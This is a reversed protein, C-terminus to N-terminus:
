ENNKSSRFDMHLNGICGSISGLIIMDNYQLVPIPWRDDDQKIIDGQQVAM